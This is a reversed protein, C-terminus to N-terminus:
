KREGFLSTGIRICTSGCNLASMYDGSMGMSLQELKNELALKKLLVFHNQPDENIPPLCMLGIVNLDLDDPNGLECSLRLYKEAHREFSTRLNKIQSDYDDIKSQCAFMTKTHKKWIQHQYLANECYQEIDEPSSIHSDQKMSNLYEFKRTLIEIIKKDTLLFMDEDPMKPFHYTLTSPAHKRHKKTYRLKNSEQSKLDEFHKWRKVIPYISPTLLTLFTRSEFSEADDNTIETPKGDEALIFNVSGPSLVFSLLFLLLRM